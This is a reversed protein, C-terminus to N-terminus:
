FDAERRLNVELTVKELGGAEESDSFGVGTEAGVSFVGFIVGSKDIEKGFRDKAFFGVGWETVM